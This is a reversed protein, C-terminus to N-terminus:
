DRRGEDDRRFGMRASINDATALLHPLLHDTMEKTPIMSTHAASNLAAVVERSEKLPSDKRM